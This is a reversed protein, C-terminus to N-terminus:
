QARLPELARFQRTMQDSVERLRDTTSVVTPTILVLTETRQISTNTSRFLNGLLPIRQLGPVGNRNQTEDEQILGGLMITQGSQIAIETSINRTNITPNDGVGPDGPSSVEQSIELYVLGGPNVRPTVELIVGTNLYQVSGLSSAGEGTVGGVFRTSQVPLQRGVNITASANNRVLLSPASITRVNSVSELADITASVFTRGVGRRTITGLFNTGMEITNEARSAPIGEPLTTELDANRNALFWSVGYTLADSLDVILVQAEVLVQLPEEDLRNIASLIADYESPSAQILLSNTEIVATVRVNGDEGLQMGGATARSQSRSSSDSGGSSQSRQFDSVSSVSAPEMGPALSGRNERSPRSGGSTGFIDGLYGALVDAELNKVRYVYLRSGAEAGSRDLRRIWKEAEDLYHENPTIVMIANLRELPMFRFMGALPTEGEEGFVAELEPLLEDVEIRELSFMGVSMGALWDVDFTEIIQLYNQLEYRTGALFLLGRANDANFVGDERAYPELIESMKVPSIYDLPVALVEYGIAANASDFRPVLNGRVAEAIPIVHYQGERWILTAGNWRLLMELVPMIQDRTIPKATAFTVEGSIGPSIVYNEQFLQGLIAHVVEQIGQGEFNLTIEGDEGPPAAREGVAADNIFVGTGPYTESEDFVNEEDDADGGGIDIEGNDNERSEPEVASAAFDRDDPREQVGGCAALFASLLLTFVVQRLRASAAPSAVSMM